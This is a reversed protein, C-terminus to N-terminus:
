TEGHRTKDRRESRPTGKRAYLGERTFRGAYVNGYLGETRDRVCSGQQSKGGVCRPSLMSESNTLSLVSMSGASLKADASKTMKMEAWNCLLVLVFASWRRAYVCTCM